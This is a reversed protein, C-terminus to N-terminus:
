RGAIRYQLPTTGFFKKYSLIFRRSDSFGCQMAIDTVTLDTDLLLGRAKELRYRTLYEKFTLGTYNKFFRTFYTRSFHFREATEELSLDEAYHEEIYMLIGRLREVSKQSNIPITSKPKKAGCACLEYLLMTIQAIIALDSYEQLEQTYIQYIRCLCNRIGESTVATEQDFFCEGLDPILGKIFDESILLTFGIVDMQELDCDFNIGHIDECNIVIFEERSVITERGNVMFQWSGAFIYDVELAEHWHDMLDPIMLKGNEDLRGDNELQERTHIIMTYPLNGGKCIMQYHNRYYSM